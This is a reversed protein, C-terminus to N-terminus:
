LLSHARTMSTTFLKMFGVAPEFSIGMLHPTTIMHRASGNQYTTITCSPTGARIAITTQAMEPIMAKPAAAKGGPASPLAQLM